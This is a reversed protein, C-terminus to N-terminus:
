NTAYKILTARRNQFVETISSPSFSKDWGDSAESSCDSTDVPNTPVFVQIRYKNEFDSVLTINSKFLKKHLQKQLHILSAHTLTLTEEQIQASYPIEPNSSGIHYYFLASITSNLGLLHYRSPEQIRRKIENYIPRDSESVFNKKPSTSFSSLPLSKMM